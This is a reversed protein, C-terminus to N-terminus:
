SDESHESLEKLLLREVEKSNLLNKLGEEIKNIEKKTYAFSCIGRYEGDVFLRAQNKGCYDLEVKCGNIWSVYIGNQQLLM